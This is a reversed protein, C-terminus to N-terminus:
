SLSSSLFEPKLLEHLNDERPLIGAELMIASVKRATQLVVSPDGFMLKHNNRLDPLVLGRFADDVEAVPLSLRESMRYIADVHNNLYHDLGKFHGAILHRIGDRLALSDERIALVDLITNPLARSDFICHAGLAGIQSAVPEYTIIADFKNSKWDSFHQDIKSRVVQVDTKELDSATLLHHLMVEGLAGTEVGITKGKLDRPSAIGPKAMVMDAGASIDLVQVISLKEGRSRALLVEDLTLAAGDVEKALIQELSESASQTKCLQVLNNDLYGLNQALFMFEYGPWVHSAVTLPRSQVCGPLSTLVPLTTLYGALKLFRRRTLNPETM